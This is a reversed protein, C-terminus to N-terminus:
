LCVNTAMVSFTEGEEEDVIRDRMQNLLLLRDFINKADRVFYEDFDKEEMVDNTQALTDAFKVPM